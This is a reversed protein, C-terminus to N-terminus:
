TLVTPNFTLLKNHLPSVFTLVQFSQQSCIYFLRKWKSSVGSDWQDGWDPSDGSTEGDQLRWKDGWDRSDGSTEGTEPTEVQRRMRSDGSTEGTGPTEM